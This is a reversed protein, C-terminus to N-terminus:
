EDDTDLSEEDCVVDDLGDTVTSKRDKDNDITCHLKFLSMVRAVGEATVERLDDAYYKARSISATIIEYSPFYVVHQYSREAKDAVARLISKSATTSVLVHRNEYTAMLPVPSVTLLVRASPNVQLLFKLFENLDAYVEEYSFNRFQYKSEDFSGGVVGPALPLIAGSQKHQWAETLGLTFVFVDLTEFLRRVTALHKERDQELEELSDFGQESINPRFPDIWRGDSKRQWAEIDPTYSGFARKILQLLQGTTYLNGYRASFVNYNESKVQSAEFHPPAQEAVYYNFGDASLRKSIHQAFCSGATAVKDSPRITIDSKVVLDIQSEDKGMISRRWFCYDPINRYPHTAGKVTGKTNKLVGMFLASLEGLGDHQHRSCTVGEPSQMRRYAAYSERIFTHLDLIRDDKGSKFSLKDPEVLQQDHTGYLPYVSAKFLPDTLLEHVSIDRFEIGERTLISKVLDEFIFMKPHNITHMFAPGGSWKQVLDSPINHSSLKNSLSECESKFEDFYGLKQYLKECFLNHVSDEEIGLKFATFVIFSHYTIPSKISTDSLYICDPHFGRFSITPVAIAKKSGEIVEKTLTNEFNSQYILLDFGVLRSSQNVIDQPAVSSINVSPLLAKLLKVWVARQCNGIVAVNM